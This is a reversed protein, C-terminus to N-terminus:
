KKKPKSKKIIKRKPKAKSVTKKRKRGIRKKVVWVDFVTTTRGDLYVEPEGLEAIGRTHFHSKVEEPPAGRPLVYATKGDDELQKVRQEAEWDGRWVSDLHLLLNRVIMTDTDPSGYPDGMRILGM